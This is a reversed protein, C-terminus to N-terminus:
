PVAGTALMIQKWIAIEDFLTFERRLGWPGWEAHTIGMVHVSAGTPAGFAGYGDHTGTLSWRVAARYPQGPDERGIAHHVQFEASPFASRLRMWETEAFARGWGGRLGPHETRVARDYERGVASFEKNMLRTLIDGLLAGWRNDNGRSVYRGAVDTAPSFPARATQPGGEQAIQGRVYALMDIGLQMLLGSGDRVLWEDYIANAKAACDAIARITMQRGTPPGYVGHGTHTGSSVLRHSSLYGDEEDGCWIVDEALLQRDPFEALTALTGDIVGRNGRTVGLPLRMIVDPAYYDHLTHLGRGEWIEETIKVIYDPLDRFKPDFGKM